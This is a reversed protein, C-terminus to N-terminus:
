LALWEKKRLAKFGQNVLFTNIHKMTTVTYADWFKTIKGKELKLITTDYSQLYIGNATTITVARNNSNELIAVKGATNANAIAGARTPQKVLYDNRYNTKLNEYYM